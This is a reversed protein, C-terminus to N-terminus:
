KNAKKLGVVIGWRLWGVILDLGSDWAIGVLPIIAFSKELTEFRLTM